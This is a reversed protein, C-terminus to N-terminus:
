VVDEDPHERCVKELYASPDWGDSVSFRQFANLEEEPEPYPCRVKKPEPKPKPVPKPEVRVYERGFFEMDTRARELRETELQIPLKRFAPEPEKVVTVGEDELMIDYEEIGEVTMRGPGRNGTLAGLLKREADDGSACDNIIAGGEFANGDEGDYRYRIRYSTLEGM